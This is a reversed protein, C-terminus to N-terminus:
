DWAHHEAAVVRRRVRAKELLSVPVIRAIPRECSGSAAEPVQKQRGCAVTDARLSGARGNAGPHAALVFPGLIFGKNIAKTMATLAM